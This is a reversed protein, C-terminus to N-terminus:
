RGGEALPRFCRWVQALWGPQVPAPGRRIQAVAADVKRQLLVNGMAATARRPEGDFGTAAGDQPLAELRVLDPALALLEATERMGAHSGIMAPSFGQARLWADQGNRAYYDTVALVRAPVGQGAWRRNLRTAVAEQVPQNGGSDGLLVIRQFGHQRFSEAADTLLAALTTDQVSITGAFRMHGEPPTIRGEPVYAIVPAVLADGLAAAIRGALATVVLNHKGLPLHPGNQETGGTPILITTKGAQLAAAVEPATMEALQVTAAQAPAALLLGCCLTLWARYRWTM